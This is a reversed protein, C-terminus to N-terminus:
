QVHTGHCGFCSAGSAGSCGCGLLACWSLYSLDAALGALRNRHRNSRNPQCGMALPGRKGPWGYPVGFQPMATSHCLNPALRYLGEHIESLAHPGM